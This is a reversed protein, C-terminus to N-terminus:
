GASRRLERGRHGETDGDDGHRDVHSHRSPPSRTTASGRGGAAAGRRRTRGARGTARWRRRRPSTAPVRGGVSRLRSGRDATASTSTTPEPAPPACSRRQARRPRHRRADDHLLAREDALTLDRRERELLHVALVTGAADRRGDAYRRDGVGLAAAGPAPRLDVAPEVAARGSSVSSRHRRSCWMASKSETSSYSIQSSTSRSSDTCSTGPAAVGALSASADRRRRAEAPAVVLDRAPHLVRRATIGSGAPPPAHGLGVQGTGGGGAGPQTVSVRTSRSRGRRACPLAPALDRRGSPRGSVISKAWTM